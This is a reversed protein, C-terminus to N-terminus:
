AHLEEQAAKYAEYESIDVESFMASVMSQAQEASDACLNVSTAYSVTEIQEGQENESLDVKKFVKGSSPSVVFTRIEKIM